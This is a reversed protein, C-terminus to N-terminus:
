KLANLRHYISDLTVMFQYETEKAYHISGFQNLHNQDFYMLTDKYFPITEFTKKSDLSLYYANDNSKILEVVKPNPQLYYIQYDYEKEKNKIFNRNIRAPNKDVAPYDQIFVFYQDSHMIQLLSDIQPLWRAGDGICTFFIIDSKKIEQSSYELLNLYIDYIKKNPFENRPINAIPPYTSNTITRFSFSHKKGIYDFYPKMCLAHSDGILLIKRSESNLTDGFMGVKKFTIGHSEMGFVPSSYEIPIDKRKKNIPSMICILLINLGLITMLPEWLRLGRKKRFSQEVFYYSLLSLISIIILAFIIQSFSLFYTNYYYRIFALIPWHWLYISYSLEGITYFIKNSIFKNVLNDHSLLVMATGICPMLALIGPFKSTGNIYFASFVLLALGAFSVLIRAKRNTTYQLPILSVLVGIFFEPARALLSFYMANCDQRFIVEYTSYTFLIIIISVIIPLLWKKKLTLFILPLFLYFQMEIALTWTHLLPNESNKAGFYTDINAFHTNSIFLTAKLISDKIGDIDRGICLFICIIAIIILLVYYAPVIRKIRNLYFSYLSFEKKEIKHLIISSILYGSIVFFIDVGIFGGPLWTSNIHFILVFLVAIARLGQIDKRYEM